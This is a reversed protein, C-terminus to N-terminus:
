AWELREICWRIYVVIDGEQVAYTSERSRWSKELLLSLNFSIDLDSETGHEDGEM